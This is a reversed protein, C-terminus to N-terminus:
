VIKLCILNLNNQIEVMAIADLTFGLSNKDSGKVYYLIGTNKDNVMALKGSITQELPSVLTVNQNWLTDLKQKM